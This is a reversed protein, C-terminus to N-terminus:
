AINEFARAPAVAFHKDNGAPKQDFAHRFVASDKGGTKGLRFRGRSHV